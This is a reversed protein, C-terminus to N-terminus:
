RFIGLFVAEPSKCQLDKGKSCVVPVYKCAQRVERLDKELTGISDM